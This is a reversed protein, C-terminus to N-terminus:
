KKRAIVKIEHQLNLANSFFYLIKAMFRVVKGQEINGIPMESKQKWIVSFGLEALYRKLHKETFHFNHHIPHILKVFFKIKKFSLYYIFNSLWGMLSSDNVTLIFIVGDDKLLRNVEQLFIKPDPVHEILDWMTIVDYKKSKLKLDELKGCYTKVGFNKKAYNCAYESVDVGEVGFGGKHAMDLFVGTACGIDLLKGSFKIKKLVKLINDFNQLKDSKSFYKAYDVKCDAFFHSHTGEFYDASYLNKNLISDSDTFLLNCFKCKLLRFEECDCFLKLNKSGCLNCIAM